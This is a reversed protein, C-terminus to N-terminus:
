ERLMPRSSAGAASRIKFKARFCQAEPQEGVFQEIGVVGFQRRHQGAQFFEAFMEAAFQRDRQQLVDAAANLDVFHIRLGDGGGDAFQAQPIISLWSIGPAACGCGFFNM